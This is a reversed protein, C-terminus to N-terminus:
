IGRSVRSDDRRQKKIRAKKGKMEAVMQPRIRGTNHNNYFIIVCKKRDKLCDEYECDAWRIQGYDIASNTDQFDPFCVGNIGKPIKKFFRHAISHYEGM